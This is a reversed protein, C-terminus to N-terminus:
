TQLERQLYHLSTCLIRAHISSGHSLVHVHLTNESEQWVIHDVRMSAIKHIAAADDSKQCDDAKYHLLQLDIFNFTKVHM